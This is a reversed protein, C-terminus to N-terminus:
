FGWSIWVFGCCYMMKIHMGKDTSKMFWKRATENNQAVAIGNAYAHGVHAMADADGMDAAQLLYDLAAVLNQEDGHTLLHAVARAAEAHGYEAFWQYHFFEQEATPLPKSDRVKEFFRKKSVAPLGGDITAASVVSSAVKEYYMAAAQCNKQVGIGHFYRYGLAMRALPDDGKAAFMFHLMALDMNPEKLVFLFNNENPAVPEIGLSYMSALDAQFEAVGFDAMERVLRHAIAPNLPAGSGDRFAFVLERVADVHQISNNRWRVEVDDATFYRVGDMVHGGSQNMSLHVVGAAAYLQHVSLKMDKQHKRLAMAKEYLEDGTTQYPASDLQVEESDKPHSQLSVSENREGNEEGAVCGNLLFIFVSLLWCWQWLRRGFVVM